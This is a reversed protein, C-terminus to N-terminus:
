KAETKHLWKSWNASWKNYLENTKKLDVDAPSCFDVAYLGPLTTSKRAAQSLIKHLEEIVKPDTTAPAVIQYNSVLDEFGTIGQGTFTRFPKHYLTGSAGIVNVKGADIWQATSAPLDVNLDLQGGIMEQTPQLTNNYGIFTLETAPLQLQLERALAETLSGLTVGITLRKQQRLEDINKYKASIVIYPQGTCQILVPKFDANNFSENPYYVPRVFFSSSSTLLALGKYNLVHKASITGGAGPKNDFYFQYKQQDANAQEIIARAYNAQNSGAAFPWVIPVQVPAATAAFSLSALLVVLLKKM